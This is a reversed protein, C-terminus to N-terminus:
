GSPLRSGLDERHATPVLPGLLHAVSGVASSAVQSAMSQVERLSESPLLHLLQNDALITVVPANTTTSSTGGKGSADKSGGKGLSDKSGGKPKAAM